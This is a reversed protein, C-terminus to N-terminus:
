LSFWKDYYHLIEAMDEGTFDEPNDSAQAGWYLGYLVGEMLAHGRERDLSKNIYVHAWLSLIYNHAQEPLKNLTSMKM